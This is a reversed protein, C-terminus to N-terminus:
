RRIRLLAIAQVNAPVTDVNHGHQATSLLESVPYRISFRKGDIHNIDNTHDRTGTNPGIDGAIDVFASFLEAHILGRQGDTASIGGLLSM